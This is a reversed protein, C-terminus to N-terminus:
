KRRHEPTLHLSKNPLKWTRKPVQNVVEIGVASDSSIAPGFVLAEGQKLQPLFNRVDGGAIAELYDLGTQDVSRFAILNECQSLASKAVVATRQSILIVSIGYKRIQMMLLGIKYSQERGPAGFGSGAPEPIFQHAEDIIVTRPAPTGKRYEEVAEKVIYEMFDLARQAPVEGPKPEYVCVGPENSKVDKDYIPFGKKSVYEGTQDLITVRRKEGLDLAIREALTSKGMKTMGLIAVHGECVASCDLFIPVKTGIVHGLLLSNDPNNAEKPVPIVNGGWVPAGPPPVWRHKTFRMSEPDFMGLQNAQARVVLHSGGKVDLREIFGSSLQFIVNDRKGRIPVVVVGGVEQSQTAVFRLFRDTSGEDVSGMLKGRPKEMIRLNLEEGQLITECKRQDAIHIQGWTDDPRMVRKIVVGETEIKGSLAIWTGIEPVEPASIMISSPGIMGQAMATPAKGEANAIITQWNVKGIFLIIAWCAVLYWFEINLPPYKEYVSLFFVSSFILRASATQSIARCAKAVGVLRGKTRGAGAVLSFLALVFFFLIAAALMNWGISTKTKETTLFLLGFIISNALVDQPRAYYPELIQPNIAVAFLGAFFWTAASYPQGSALWTTVCLISLQVALIAIRWRITM